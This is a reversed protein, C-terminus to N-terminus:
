SAGLENLSFEVSVGVPLRNHKELIVKRMSSDIFRELRLQVRCWPDVVQAAVPSFGEKPDKLPDGKAQNLVIAVVDFREAVHMMVAMQRCMEMNICVNEERDLGVSYRYLSGASDLVILKVEEKVLMEVSDIADSQDSFSQPSLLLFHSMDINNFRSSIQLFRERPFTSEAEIFIAKWGRSICNLACQLAISTKGSGAVGYIHTLIGSEVGGGLLNDIPKCLTEILVM